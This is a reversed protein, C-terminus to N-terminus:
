KKASLAPAATDDLFVRVDPHGQLFSAPCHGTRPGEIMAKVAAVKNSGYAMILIHRSELITKLGVTVGLSPAYDGDFWRRNADVSVPDLHVLRGPSDEASGPENFGLHGNQGLGLVIVDLGGLKAIRQEHQRVSDLADTELSSVAFIQTAPVGWSEAVSRRLLNACNRPEALPVGVYEDLAFVNLHSLKLKREAILRYLELPTNGGAVMVNRTTPHALWAVLCDAAASNAERTTPHISINV